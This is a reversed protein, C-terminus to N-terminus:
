HAFGNPGLKHIIKGVGVFEPFLFLFARITFDGLPKAIAVGDVQQVVEGILFILLGQLRHRAKCFQHILKMFIRINSLFKKQHLEGKM